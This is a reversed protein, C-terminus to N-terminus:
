VNRGKYIFRVVALSCVIKLTSFILGRNNSVQIEGYSANLVSYNEVFMSYEVVNLVGCISLIILACITTKLIIKRDM